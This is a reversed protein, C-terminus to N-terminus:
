WRPASFVLVGAIEDGAPAAMREGRPKPAKEHHAAALWGTMKM